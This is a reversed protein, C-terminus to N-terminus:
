VIPVGNGSGGGGGEEGRLGVGEQQIVTRTYKDAEEDNEWWGDALRGLSPWLPHAAVHRGLNMATDPAASDKGALRPVTWPCSSPDSVGCCFVDTLPQLHLSMLLSLVTSIASLTEKKYYM